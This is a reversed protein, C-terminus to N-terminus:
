HILDLQLVDDLDNPLEEVWVDIDTSSIAQRALTYALKSVGM